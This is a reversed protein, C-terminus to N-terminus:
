LNVDELVETNTHSYIPVIRPSSFMISSKKESKAESSLNERKKKEEANKPATQRHSQIYDLASFIDVLIVGPDEIYWQLLWKRRLFWHQLVLAAATREDTVLSSEGVSSALMRRVMDTTGATEALLTKVRHGSHRAYHILIRRLRVLHRLRRLTNRRKDTIVQEISRTSDETHHERLTTLFDKLVSVARTVLQKKREQLEPSLTHTDKDSDVALALSTIKSSMRRSVDFWKQSRRLEGMMEEVAMLSRHHEPNSDAVADLQRGIAKTMNPNMLYRAFSIKLHPYKRRNVLWPEVYPVIFFDILVSFFFLVMPVTILLAVMADIVMGSQASGALSQVGADATSLTKGFKILIGAFTFAFIELQALSNSMDVSWSRFPGVFGSFAMYTATFILATAMSVASNQPLLQFVACLLLKRFMEVIEWWYTGPEYADYLMRLGHRGMPEGTLPDFLDKRHVYLQGLLYLPVDNCNISYDVKLYAEGSSLQHCMFPTASILVEAMRPYILFLVLVEAQIVNAWSKNSQAMIWNLCSGEHRVSFGEYRNYKKRAYYQARCAAIVLIPTVSYLFISGSLSIEFMCGFAPLTDLSAQIVQRILQLIGNFFPPWDV